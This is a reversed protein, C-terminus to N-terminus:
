ILDLLTEVPKQTKISSLRQGVYAREVSGEETKLASAIMPRLEEPIRPDSSRWEISALLVEEESHEDNKTSLPHGLPLYKSNDENIKFDEGFIAVNVFDNLEKFALLKQYEKDAFINKLIANEVITYATVPDVSRIESVGRNASAILESIATGFNVQDNKFLPNEVLGNIESAYSDEEYPIQEM